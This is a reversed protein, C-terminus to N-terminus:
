QTHENVTEPPVLSHGWTSERPQVYEERSGNCEPVRVEEQRGPWNGVSIHNGNEGAPRPVPTWLTRAHSKVAGGRAILLACGRHPGAGVVNCDVETTKLLWTQPM